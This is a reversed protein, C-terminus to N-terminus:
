KEQSKRISFKFTRIDYGREQLHQRLNKGEFIDTREFALMLLRMDRKMGCFNEPFCYFLDEDGLEKGWKVLLEGDKAIPKRM